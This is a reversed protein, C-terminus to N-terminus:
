YSGTKQGRNVSKLLAKSLRVLKPDKGILKEPKKEYHDTFVSLAKKIIKLEAEYNKQRRYYIMLRDYPFEELPKQAIADEYMSAAKETEGEAELLRASKILETYHKAVRLVM